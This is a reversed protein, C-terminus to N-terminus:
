HRENFTILGGVKMVTAIVNLRAGEKQMRAGDSGGVRVGESLLRSSEHFIANMLSVRDAETIDLIM